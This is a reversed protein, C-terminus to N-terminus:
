KEQPATEPESKKRMKLFLTPILAVITFSIGSLFPLCPLHISVQLNKANQGGTLVRFIMNTPALGLGKDGRALMARLRPAGSRQQTM